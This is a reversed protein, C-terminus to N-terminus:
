KRPYVTIRGYFLRYLYVVFTVSGILPLIIYFSFTTIYVGILYLIFLVIHWISVFAFIGVVVLPGILVKFPTPKKLKCIKRLYKNKIQIFNDLPLLYLFLLFPPMVVMKYISANFSVHGTINFSSHLPNGEVFGLSLAIETSVFDFINLLCFILWLAFVPHKKLEALTSM